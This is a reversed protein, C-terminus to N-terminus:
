ILESNQVKAHSNYSRYAGYGVTAVTGAIAAIAAVRRWKDAKSMRPKMMHSMKEVLELIRDVPSM